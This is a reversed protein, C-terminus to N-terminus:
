IDFRVMKSMVGVGMMVSILAVGAFLLGRDDTFLVIIYDPSVAFLLGIMIFPLSGLITASARAESAMAKIKLKMQQRKRLIDSLNGLTEGLNGGTESQVVLSIVFFKFEPIDLRAATAWLAEELTAGLRIQDAIGRFEEGVPSAMERGAVNIGEIVPLGSKVGRVLLDIADPFLKVFKARRRSIMMGVIMHPLGAGAAVGGLLGVGLSMHFVTTAVGAVFCGLGLCIVAYLGIGIRKGTRELRESLLGPRPMFRRVLKDLTPNATMEQRKVSGSPKGREDSSALNNSLRDSIKEARKNLRKRDRNGLVAFLIAGVALTVGVFITIVVPDM